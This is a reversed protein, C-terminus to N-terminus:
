SAPTVNLDLTFIYNISPGPLAVIFYCLREWSGLSLYYLIFNTGNFAISINLLLSHTMNPLKPNHIRM